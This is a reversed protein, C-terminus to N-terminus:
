IQSNLIEARIILRYFLLLPQYLIYAIFFPLLIGTLIPILKIRKTEKKCKNDKESILDTDEINQLKRKLVENKM